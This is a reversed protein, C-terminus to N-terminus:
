EFEKSTSIKVVLETKTYSDRLCHLKIPVYMVHGECYRVLM